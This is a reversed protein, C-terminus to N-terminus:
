GGKGGRDLVLVAQGARSVRARIVSKSNLAQMEIVQGERGAELARATTQVVFGGSICDVTLLDGRKVVVPMEVDGEVVVEGAGIRSRVVQGLVGEGAPRVGPSLWAEERRVQDNSLVQGRPIVGVARWVMRRVQVGVRVTGSAALREGEYVRVALPMREGDGAPRIVVLRGAAPMDLLAADHDEFTVRVDDASVGLAEAVRAPVLARIAGPTNVETATRSEAAGPSERRPPDAHSTTGVRVACPGGRVRVRGLNVTGTKELAARVTASDIVGGAEVPLVVGRVAEAGEGDVDAVDGVTLRAGDAMAAFTRLTVTQGEAQRPVLMTALMLVVFVAMAAVRRASPAGETARAGRGLAPRVGEGPDVVILTM